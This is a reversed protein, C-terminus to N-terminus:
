GAAVAQLSPSACGPGGAIGQQCGALGEILYMAADLTITAVRWYEGELGWRSAPHAVAWWTCIKLRVSAYDALTGSKITAAHAARTRLAALVQM